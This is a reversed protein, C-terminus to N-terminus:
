AVQRLPRLSRGDGGHVPEGFRGLLDSTVSADEPHAFFFGQGFHCGLGRLTSAQEPTEVGEAIVRLDLKAAVGMIAEVIAASATDDAVDQVFSRNIKMTDVPLNGLHKLSAYSSEFGSMAVFLGEARLRGVDRMVSADSGSLLMRETVEIALHKLAVDHRRCAETVRRYIEGCQFDAKSLNIGVHRVPLGADLWVRIDAAVRALMRDTVRCAIRHDQFAEAFEAAAVIRGDAMRLRALSELAMVEGTRLNVIPQYFPTIRGDRLADDVNRLTAIRRLASSRMDDRFEIYRGRARRKCEYLALDAKQRLLEATDGELAVAGGISVQPSLNQGEFPLNGQMAAVISAGLDALRASTVDGQLDVVFEDGGIRAVRGNLGVALLLRQAVTRLLVDGAHHGSTDNVEKLHDVDIMLLAIGTGDKARRAFAADIRATFEARNPLNTLSDHNAAHWLMMEAARKGTIDQVIGFLRTANGDVMEADGATRIWKRQGASTVVELELDYGDGHKITARTAEVLRAAEPYFALAADITMPTGIPVGHIRYTEDSWHVTRAALDIEFGGVRAIRETQRSQLDRVKLTRSHAEALRRQEDAERATRLNLEAAKHSEILATVVCALDALAAQQAPSLHRPVRDLVGIAGLGHGSAVRLPAGAYFRIDPVGTVLPNDRFRPDCAADEVVFVSEGMITYNCFAIERDTQTVDLGVVSKFWQRNEDVLTVVAIPMDFMARACRVLADIAASPASDLIDYSRLAALREQEDQSVPYAM